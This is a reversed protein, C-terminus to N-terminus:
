LNKRGKSVAKQFFDDLQYSKDAKGERGDGQAIDDPSVFGQAFWSELIKHMYKVTPNKASAVTKEYAADLMDQGYRYTDRWTEIIEEEARSLKRDGWGFLRRVYSAYETLEARRRFHAEAKEYSDIGEDQFSTLVKTIYRMSKKDRSVADEVVLM